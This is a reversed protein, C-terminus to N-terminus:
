HTLSALNRIPGAITGGTTDTLEGAWNAFSLGPAYAVINKTVDGLYGITTGDVSLSIRFFFAETKLAYFGVQFRRFGLSGVELISAQAREAGVVVLSTNAGTTLNWLATVGFSAGGDILFGGFGRTGPALYASACIWHGQAPGPPNVVSGSNYIAHEANVATEAILCAQAGGNPDAQGGTRATQLDTWNGGALTRNSLLLNEQRKILARAM